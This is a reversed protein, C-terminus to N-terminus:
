TLLAVTERIMCRCASLFFALSNFAAYGSLPVVYDLGATGSEPEPEGVSRSELAQKLAAFASHDIRESESEPEPEPERQM